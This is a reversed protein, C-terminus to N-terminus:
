EKRVHLVKKGNVIYIGYPLGDLSTANKRILAGTITYVNTPKDIQLMSLIPIGTKSLIILKGNSYTFDYNEAEGGSLVLDYEGAPSANTAETTVTPITTLVNEDEGNKFGDFSVAFTPLEDGETITANDVNVTLPSKTITLTGNRVTVYSNEVGDLNLEVDYEGVPSSIDADTVFAVEGLVDAGVRNYTFEPNEDGYQRSVDNVILEIPQAVKITFDGMETAGYSLIYVTPTPMTMVFVDKENITKTEPAIRNGDADFFDFQADTGAIEWHLSDEVFGTYSFGQVQGGQPASMTATKENDLEVFVPEVTLSMDELTDVIAESGIEDNNFVQIGVTITEKTTVTMTEVDFVYEAEISRPKVNELPIVINDLDISQQAPDIAIRTRPEDNFWYDVGVLKSPGEIKMVMFSKFVVASTHGAKDITRYNFTHLGYNLTSIDIDLMVTGDEPIIATEREDFNSDLWYEYTLLSNEGSQTTEFLMFNKVLVPSVKGVADIVRMAINHLGPNLSAVDIDLNVIGSADMTGSVREDFKQDIWYEYTQLSNEGSQTTEFLMFNKVMVPSVKGVADIVRMAINHLGPNLSAVDIDLNVIGSADMTGSVREGFKQDIWYEYTQLSNEGSQTTEFLMFNKVMVPSVKGTADIVRMAINHLGPNLSAVDIDLNVIGSADMTGSVREDFKQDIWYEYTQLSNEGSPTTEFLMFFKTVVPSYLTKTDDVALVRFAVNHLGPSLTAVDLEESWTSSTMEATTRSGFQQDFWYECTTVSVQATTTLCCLLTLISLM